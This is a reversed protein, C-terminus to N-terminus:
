KKRRYVFAAFGSPDHCLETLDYKEGDWEEYFKYKTRRDPHREELHLYDDQIDDVLIIAEDALLPKYMEFEKKVQEYVHITDCFLLNIKGNIIKSVALIMEPDLCNGVMAFFQNNDILKNTKDPPLFRLDEVTDVTVFTQSAKIADLMALTSLGERNGLECINASDPLNSVINHLLVFYGHCRKNDNHPIRVNNMYKSFEPDANVAVAWTPDNWSIIPNNKTSEIADKLISSIVTM